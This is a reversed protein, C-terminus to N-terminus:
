ANVPEMVNNVLVLHPRSRKVDKFCCRCIPVHQIDEFYAGGEDTKGVNVETYAPNTGSWGCSQNVCEYKPEM